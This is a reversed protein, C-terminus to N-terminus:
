QGPGGGGFGFNFVPPTLPQGDKGTIEQSGTSAGLALRGIRQAVEAAAALNRLAKHDCPLSSKQMATLAKAVQARIAKAVKLDSDDFAELEALRQATRRKQAQLTITDLLEQRQEPWGDKQGRKEVATASLGFKKATLIYSDGGNVYHLRAAEWTTPTPTQESM